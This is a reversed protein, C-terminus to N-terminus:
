GCMAQIDTASRGEHALLSCYTHRLDYPTATVEARKAAPRWVRSRWNRLDIPLGTASQAVLEGPETVRPRHVAVDAALPAVLDVVRRLHTKTQKMEGYTYARDVSVVHETISEWSLAFAEEPRLGAYALLGVIVADRVTPM